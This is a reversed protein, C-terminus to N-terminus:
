AHSDKVGSSDYLWPKTDYEYLEPEPSVFVDSGAVSLIMCNSEDKYGNRECISVDKEKGTAPDKMDVRSRVQMM